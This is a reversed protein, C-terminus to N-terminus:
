IHILSLALDAKEIGPLQPILEKGGTAVIIADANKAKEDDATMKYNLTVQVGEKELQRQYWHILKRGEEKFSPISAFRFKGGFSNTEELLEVQHGRLACVRAAEM